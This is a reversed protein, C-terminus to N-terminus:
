IDVRLLPDRTWTGITSSETAASLNTVQVSNLEVRDYEEVGSIVIM